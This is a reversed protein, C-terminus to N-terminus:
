TLNLLERIEEDTFYSELIPPKGDRLMELYSPLKHYFDKDFRGTRKYYESEKDAVFRRLKYVKENRIMSRVSWIMATFCIALLASSLIITIM